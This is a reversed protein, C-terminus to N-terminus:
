NWSADFEEDGGGITGDSQLVEMFGDGATINALLVEFEEDM